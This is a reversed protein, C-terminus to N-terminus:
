LRGQCLFPPGEERRRRLTRLTEANFEKRKIKM